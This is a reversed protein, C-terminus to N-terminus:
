AVVEIDAVPVTAVVEGDAAFLWGDVGTRALLALGADRGAILASKALVDAQWALPATVVVSELGRDAPAGTAPDVIHHVTAGDGATWRRLVTTSQAIAEDVLPFQLRTAGTRPDHVPVLWTADADPGPGAVRIDGGMSVCVSTAGRAMLGEVVVDAALGKGIGGLDITVDAPRVVRLQDDADDLLTVADFGPVAVARRPAMRRSAGIASFTRDYGLAVLANLVTPDFRGGTLAYADRARRLALALRPSVARAAGASARNLVGLESDARFRSWCQECREVEAVAWAVLADADDGWVLISAESGM